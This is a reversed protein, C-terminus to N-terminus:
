CYWWDSIVIVEKALYFAYESNEHRHKVYFKYGAREM